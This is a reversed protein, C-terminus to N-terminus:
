LKESNFEGSFTNGWYYNLGIGLLDLIKQQTETLSDRFEKTTEGALRVQYSFIGEFTYLIKSTTPHFADRFEPYVPLTEIGREKMRFRVEREIIAQIMLSLFFLFMIGEVREIKKFLLPAAEHVSKFQTFRKELKPQYKYAFLVEKASLSKDTTLLPFIGDM